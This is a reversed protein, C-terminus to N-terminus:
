RLLSHLHWLGRLSNQLWEITSDAVNGVNIIGRSYLSEMLFLQLGPQGIEMMRFLDTLVHLMKTLCVRERKPTAKPFMLFHCQYGVSPDTRRQVYLWKSRRWGHNPKDIYFSDLPGRNALQFENRPFSAAVNAEGNRSSRCFKEAPLTDM